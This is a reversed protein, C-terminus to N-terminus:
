KLAALPHRAARAAALLRQPFSVPLYTSLRVVPAAAFDVSSM